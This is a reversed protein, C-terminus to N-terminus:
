KSRFLKYLHVQGQLKQLRKVSRFRSQAGRNDPDHRLAESFHRKAPDLDGLLYYARGRLLLAEVSGVDIKLIQGTLAVVGSQLLEKHLIYQCVIIVERENSPDACARMPLLSIHTM